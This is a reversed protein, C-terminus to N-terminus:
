NKVTRLEGELHTAFLQLYFQFAVQFDAPLLSFFCHGTVYALLLKGGLLAHAGVLSVEVAALVLGALKAVVAGVGGEIELEM